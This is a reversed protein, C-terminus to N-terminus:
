KTLQRLLEQIPEYINCWHFYLRLFSFCPLFSSLSYCVLLKWCAAICRFLMRALKLLREVDWSVAVGEPEAAAGRSSLSRPNTRGDSAALSRSFSALRISCFRHIVDHVVAAARDAQQDQCRGNGHLWM